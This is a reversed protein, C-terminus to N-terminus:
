IKRNYSREDSPRGSARQHAPRGYRLCEITRVKGAEGLGRYFFGPLKWFVDGLTKADTWLLQDRYLVDGTDTAATLKGIGPIFRIVTSDKLHVTDQHAKRLSDPGATHGKRLSDLLLPHTASRISDVKFIHSTDAAASKVPMEHHVPQAQVPSCMVCHFAFLFFSYKIMKHM